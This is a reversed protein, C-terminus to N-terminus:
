TITEEGSLSLVFFCFIVGFPLSVLWHDFLSLVFLASVLSAAVARKKKNKLIILLWIVLFLTAAWLGTEVTLLLWVNHVPQYLWASLNPFKNSLFNSYDGLGVQKFPYHVFESAATKMGFLREQVSVNELRGSASVRALLWDTHSSFFISAVALSLVFVMVIKFLEHRYNFVLRVLMALIFALWAARSFSVLLAWIFLLTLFILGQWEKKNKTKFLLDTALLLAFVIVGGFINPHDFSGYARLLRGSSTELVSEGAFQSVQHSSVFYKIEPVRQITFQFIGLIASIACSFLFAKKVLLWNIKDKLLRSFFLLAVGCFFYLFHSLSLLLNSSFFISVFLSLSFALLVVNFLSFYKPWKKEVTTQYIALGVFVLLALVFGYLAIELFNNQGGNIEGSCLILKVQWPLTFAFFAFSISLWNKRM